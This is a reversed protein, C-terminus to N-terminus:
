TIPSQRRDRSTLQDAHRARPRHTQLDHHGAHIDCLISSNRGCNAATHTSPTPWSLSRTVNRTRAFAPSAALLILLVVILRRM